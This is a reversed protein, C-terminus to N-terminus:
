KEPSSTTQKLLEDTKQLSTELATINAKSVKKTSSLIQRLELLKSRCEEFRGTQVLFRCYNSEILLKMTLGLPTKRLRGYAAEAAEQDGMDGLLSTMSIHLGTNKPELRLARWLTDMAETFQRSNSYCHALAQLKIPTEGKRAIEQQIAAVPDDEKVLVSVLRAEAAARRIVVLNVIAHVVLNAVCIGLAHEVYQNGALVLSINAIVVFVRFVGRTQMLTLCHLAFVALSMLVLLISAYLSGREVYSSVSGLLGAIIGGLYITVRNNMKVVCDGITIGPSATRPFESPPAYPNDTM